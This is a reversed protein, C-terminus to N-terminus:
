SQTESKWEDIKALVEVLEKRLQEYKEQSWRSIYLDYIEAGIQRAKDEYDKNSLEM